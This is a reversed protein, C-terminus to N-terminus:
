EKQKIKQFYENAAWGIAETLAAATAANIANGFAPMWGALFQAAARGANTATYTGIITAATQQTAVVGYEAGISVIMTGQLAVLPICDSGPAQAMGAGIAGAATAAGHIISSIKTQNAM